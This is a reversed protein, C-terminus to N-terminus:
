RAAAAQPEVVLPQGGDNSGVAVVIILSFVTANQCQVAIWQLLLNSGLNSLLVSCYCHREVVLLKRGDYADM